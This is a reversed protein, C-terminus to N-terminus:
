NKKNIFENWNGATLDTESVEFVHEPFVPESINELIKAVGSDFDFKMEQSSVFLSLLTLLGFLSLTKM